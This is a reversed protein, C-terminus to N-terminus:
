ATSMASPEAMTVAITSVPFISAMTPTEHRLTSSFHKGCMSRTAIGPM